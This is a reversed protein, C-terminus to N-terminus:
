GITELQEFRYDFNKRKIEEQRDAEAQQNAAELGGIIAGIMADGFAGGANANIPVLFIALFVFLPVVYVSVLRLSKVKDLLCLIVM